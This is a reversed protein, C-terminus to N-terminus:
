MQLLYGGSPLGASRVLNLSVWAFAREILRAAVPKSGYGKYLLGSDLREIM